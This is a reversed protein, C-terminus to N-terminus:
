IMPRINYTLRKHWKSEVLHTREVGRRYISHYVFGRCFMGCHSSAKGFRFLPIDGNRMDDLSVIVFNGSPHAVLTNLLLEYDNHLFWDDSYKPIIGKYWNLYGMESLVKAVFFICDAGKQKMGCWHRFPTGVWSELEKQLIDIDFNEFYPIM